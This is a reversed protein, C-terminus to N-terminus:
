MLLKYNEAYLDLYKLKIGIYKMKETIKFTITNKIKAHVHM